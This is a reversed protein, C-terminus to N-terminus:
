VYPMAKRKLSNEQNTSRFYLSFGHPIDILDDLCPQPTDPM